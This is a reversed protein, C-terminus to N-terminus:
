EHLNFQPLRSAAKPKGADSCCMVSMAEGVGANTEAMEEDNARTFETLSIHVHEGEDSQSCATIEPKPGDDLLAVRAYAQLAVQKIVHKALLYKKEGCDVRLEIKFLVSM